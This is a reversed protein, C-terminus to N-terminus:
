ERKILLQQIHKRYKGEKNIYLNHKKIAYVFTRLEWTIMNGGVERQIAVYSLGNEQLVVIRSRMRISWDGSKRSSLIKNIKKMALLTLSNACVDLRLQVDAVLKIRCFSVILWVSIEWMQVYGQM